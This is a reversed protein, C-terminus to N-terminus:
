SGETTVLRELSEPVKLPRYVKSVEATATTTSSQLGNQTRVVLVGILILHRLEYPHTRKFRQHVAFNVNCSAFRGASFNILNRIKLGSNSRM